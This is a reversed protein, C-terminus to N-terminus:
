RQMSRRRERLAMEGLEQYLEAYRDLTTQQDMHQTVFHRGSAALQSRFNANQLMALLKSAIAEANADVLQYHENANGISSSIGIYPTVLCPLGTAMAELVSNPTGERDSALIFIDSARLYDEVNEINGTFHVKERAGSSAILESLRQGLPKLKPDHIDSRPGVFLLHTDPYQTLVRQWAAVVKDPGKRPMIAGVIVIVKHTDPIGLNQRIRAAEQRDGDSHAPHFRALNVGNPIYEIRTRVGIRELFDKISSSNTVLADFENYVKRYGPLRLHRKIPKKPWKPYQSVSYLIAAGSAKLQRLWPAARPRINTLLQVVLRPDCPQNCANVLADYYLKTRLPGKTDPLRIRHLPVGDLKSPPLWEGPEVEYWNALLDSESREEILPTGTLVQVELGRELFGPIYNRYRNQAGGYTPYFHPSAL